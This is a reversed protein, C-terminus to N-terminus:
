REFWLWINTLECRLSDPWNCEIRESSSVTLITVNTVPSNLSVMLAITHVSQLRGHKIPVPLELCLAVESVYDMTWVFLDLPVVHHLRQM